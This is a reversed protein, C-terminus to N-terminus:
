ASWISSRRAADSVREITARDIANPQELLWSRLGLKNVVDVDNPQTRVALSNADVVVVVGRAVIPLGSASALIRSVRTAEYRSDRIYPQRQGNVMFVDGAVWISDRKHPKTDLCFVGAPGIVLHDIDTGPQAAPIAHLVCWEDGLGALEKAVLEEGRAGVRWSREDTHVGAVRAIRTWVPQSVREAHRVRRRRVSVTGSRHEEIVDSMQLEGFGRLEM